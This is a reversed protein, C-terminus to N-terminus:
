DDSQEIGLDAKGYKKRFPFIWCVAFEGHSMRHLYSICSASTHKDKKKHEVFPPFRPRWHDGSCVHVRCLHSRDLFMDALTTSDRFQLSRAVTMM